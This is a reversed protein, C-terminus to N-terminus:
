GPRSAPPRADSAEPRTKWRAHMWVWAEPAQRIAGEIAATLTATLARVDAERDGSGPLPVRALELRHGGDPRRFAFGTVVAAGTRLALDAAARPTFAEKGFFDVFVGQVKTDQDILLGLIEGKKLARLMDRAAGDRGRWIVKVGGSERVRQILATTREDSAEKAITQSPFGARAVRRALLEFNGVHGSVFVVGRGEALAAQLLARSAEPFEVYQELVPDIRRLAALEGGCAGLHRFCARALELREAESKEPFAVALSALAKRRERGALPFALGGVALGLRRAAGLPLLGLLGLLARVLYYRVFRKIRKHLRREAM